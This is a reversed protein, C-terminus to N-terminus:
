VMALIKAAGAYKIQDVKNETSISGFCIGLSLLLSFSQDPVATLLKVELSRAPSEVLSPYWDTSATLQPVNEYRPKSPQYGNPSYFLDPLIGLQTTICYMPYRGPVFFNIGPILAPIDIRAQLKDRSLSFSCPNRIISDFINKKNLNFGQLLKPNKTFLISRKGLENRRDMEQIPKLLANLAGTFNFDALSKQQYIMRRIWKTATARGGFEANIKRTKAFAPSKKIKQKSAGGKTRLIINDSGRRKYASLNGITGTFSFGSTIHAM